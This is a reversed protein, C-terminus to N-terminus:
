ENGDISHTIFNQDVVALGSEIDDVLLTYTIGGCPIALNEGTATKLVSFNPLEVEVAADRYKLALTESPLPDIAM